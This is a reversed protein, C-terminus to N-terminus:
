PETLADTMVKRLFFSSGDIFPTNFCLVYIFLAMDFDIFFCQSDIISWLYVNLHIYWVNFIHPLIFLHSTYLICFIAYFGGM